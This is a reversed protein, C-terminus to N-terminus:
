SHTQDCIPQQNHQLELTKFLGLNKLLRLVKQRKDDGVWFSCCPSLLYQIHCRSIKNAASRHLPVRSYISVESDSQLKIRRYRIAHSQYTGYCAKVLGDSLSKVYEPDTDVDTDVRVTARVTTAVAATHYHLLLLNLVQM